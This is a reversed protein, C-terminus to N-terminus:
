YNRSVIFASFSHTSGSAECSVMVEIEIGQIEKGQMDVTCCSISYWRRFNEFGEVHEQEAFVTGPCSFGEQLNAAIEILDDHSHSRIEEIKEQALGLAQSRIGSRYSGTYGSSLLALMSVIIIGLVAITVALEILTLGKEHFISNTALM